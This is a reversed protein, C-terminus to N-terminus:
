PRLGHVAIGHAVMQMLHATTVPCKGCKYRTPPIVRKPRVEAVRRGKM